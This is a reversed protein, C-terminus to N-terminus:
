SVNPQAVATLPAEITKNRLSGVSGFSEASELNDWPQRATCHVYGSCFDMGRALGLM